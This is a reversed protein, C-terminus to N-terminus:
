DHRQAELLNPGRHQGAPQRREATQKHRQAEDDQHLNPRRRRSIHNGALSREVARRLDAAAPQVRSSSDFHHALSALHEIRDRDPGHIREGLDEDDRRWVVFGVREGDTGDELYGIYIGLVWRM